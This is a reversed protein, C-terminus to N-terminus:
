LVLRCNSARSRPLELNRGTWPWPVRIRGREMSPAILTRSLPSHDMEGFAGDFLFTAAHKSTLRLPAAVVACGLNLM